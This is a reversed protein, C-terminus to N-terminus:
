SAYTRSITRPSATAGNLARVSGSEYLQTLDRACVILRGLEPTKATRSCSGVTERRPALCLKCSVYSFSRRTSVLGHVDSSEKLLYRPARFAPPM